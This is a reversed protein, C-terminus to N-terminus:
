PFRLRRLLSIILSRESEDYHTRGNACPMRKKVNQPEKADVSEEDGISKIVRRSWRPRHKGRTDKKKKEHSRRM